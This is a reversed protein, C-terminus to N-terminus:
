TTTGRRLLRSGSGGVLIDQLWLGAAVPFAAVAAFTAQQRLQLAWAPAGARCEIGYSRRRRRWFVMAGAHEFLLLGAVVGVLAVATLTSSAEGPVASRGSWM